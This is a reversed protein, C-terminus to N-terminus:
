RGHTGCAGGVENGNVQNVQHYKTISINLLAEANKNQITDINKRPNHNFNSFSFTKTYLLMRCAHLDRNQRHLVAALM